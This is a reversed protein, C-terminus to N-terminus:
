DHTSVITRGFRTGGGSTLGGRPSEFVEAFRAFIAADHLSRPSAFCRICPAGPNSCHQAPSHACLLCSTATPPAATSSSPRTATSPTGPCLETPSASATRIKSSPSSEIPEVITVGLVRVRIRERQGARVPTPTDVQFGSRTKVRWRLVDDAARHWADEGRGVAASIESRRFAADTSAWRPAEPM